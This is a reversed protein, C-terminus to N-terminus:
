WPVHLAGGSLDAPDREDLSAAGPPPACRALDTLDAPRAFPFPCLGTPCRSLTILALSITASELSVFLSPFLGPVHFGRRPSGLFRLAFAVLPVALYVVILGGLWPLPSRLAGRTM